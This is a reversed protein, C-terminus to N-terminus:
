TRLRAMTARVGALKEEKERVASELLDIKTQRLKVQFAQDAREQFDRNIGIERRDRRISRELNKEIRQLDTLRKDRVSDDRQARRTKVRAFAADIRKKLAHRDSRALRTSRMEEFLSKLAKFHPGPRVGEDMEAELATLREDLAHAARNSAADQATKEEARLTKLADFLLDLETKLPRVVDAPLHNERAYGSLDSWYRSCDDFLARDFGELFGLRRKLEDLRDRYHGLMRQELIRASWRVEIDRIRGPEDAQVSAPLIHDDSLTRTWAPLDDGHGSLRVDVELDDPRLDIHITVRRGDWRGTLAHTDPSSQTDKM